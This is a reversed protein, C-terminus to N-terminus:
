QVEANLSIVADPKPALNLRIGGSFVMRHGSELIEAQAAELMESRTDIRVVEGARIDGKDLAMDISPTVIHYGDSTVMDVGGELRLTQTTGDFIGIPATLTVWRRDQMELRGIVDTYHVKKPNDFAQVGRKAQMEYARGQSRGSIRPDVMTVGDRTFLVNALGFRSSFSTWAIWGVVAFAALGGILPLGLRLRRVRRSHRSAEDRARGVSRAAAFASGANPQPPM